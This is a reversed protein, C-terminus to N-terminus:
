IHTWYNSTISYYYPLFCNAPIVEKMKPEPSSVPIFRNPNYGGFWSFTIYEFTGADPGRRPVAPLSIKKYDRDARPRGTPAAANM